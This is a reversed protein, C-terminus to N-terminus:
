IVFDLLEVYVESSRQSVGLLLFFVVLGELLIDFLALGCHQFHHRFGLLGHGVSWILVVHSSFEVSHDGVELLDGFASGLFDGVQNISKLLVHLDPMVLLHIFDFGGFGSNLASRL